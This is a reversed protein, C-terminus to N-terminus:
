PRDSANSELNFTGQAKKRTLGPCSETFTGHVDWQDEIIGKLIMVCTGGSASEKLTASFKRANSSISGSIGFNADYDGGQCCLVAGGGLRGGAPITAGGSDPPAFSIYFPDERGPFARATATGIFEGTGDIGAPKAKKADDELEQASAASALFLIAIVLFTWKMM